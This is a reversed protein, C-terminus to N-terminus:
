LLDIKLSPYERRVRDQFQLMLDHGLIIRLGGYIGMTHIACETTMHPCHHCFVMRHVMAMIGNHVRNVVNDLPCPVIIETGHQSTFDFVVKDDGDCEVRMKPDAELLIELVDEALQSM